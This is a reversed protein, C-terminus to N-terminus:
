KSSLRQTRLRQQFQVFQELEVGNLPDPDDGGRFTYEPDLAKGYRRLEYHLHPGSSRGTSGVYGILTGQKLSQHMAINAFRSLHAYTTEFGNGHEIVVFNGYNNEYGITKVRGQQTVRVETGTPAGIDIGQHNSWSRTFPDLRM